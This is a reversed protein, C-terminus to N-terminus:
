PFKWTSTDHKSFILLISIIFRINDNTKINHLWLCQRSPVPAYIWCQEYVTVQRRSKNCSQTIYLVFVNWFIKKRCEHSLHCDVFFVFWAQFVVISDIHLSLGLDTIVMLSVIWGSLASFGVYVKHAELGEGSSQHVSCLCASCCAQVWVAWYCSARFCTGLGSAATGKLMWWLFGAKKQLCLLVAASYSLFAHSSCPVSHQM